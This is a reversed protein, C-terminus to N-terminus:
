RPGRLGDTDTLYVEDLLDANDGYGFNATLYDDVEERPCGNLAMNLAALRAARTAQRAAFDGRRRHPAALARDYLELGITERALRPDRRLAERIAAQRHRGDQVDFRTARTLRLVGLPQDPGVAVFVGSPSFSAVLTGPSWDRRREILREALEDVRRPDLGPRAPDSNAEVSTLYTAAFELPVLALYRARDGVRGRLAALELIEGERAWPDYRSPSVTHDSM